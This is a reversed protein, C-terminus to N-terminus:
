SLIKLRNEGNDKTNFEVEFKDMTIEGGSFCPENVYQPLTIVWKKVLM